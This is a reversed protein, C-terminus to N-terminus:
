NGGLYKATMAQMTEVQIVAKFLGSTADLIALKETMKLKREDFYELLLSVEQNIKKSDM